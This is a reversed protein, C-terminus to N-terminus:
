ASAKGPAFSPCAEDLAQTSPFDSVASLEAHKKLRFAHPTPTLLPSSQSSFSPSSAVLTRRKDAQVLRWRWPGTLLRDRVWWHHANGTTVGQTKVLLVPGLDFLVSLTVPGGEHDRWHSGALAGWRVDDPHSRLWDQAWWLRLSQESRPQRLVQIPAIAVLMLVVGAMAAGSWGARGQWAAWAIAAWWSLAVLLSLGALARSVQWVAMPWPPLVFSEGQDEPASSCWPAM